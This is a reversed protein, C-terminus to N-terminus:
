ITTVQFELIHGVQRRGEPTDPPLAQEAQTLVGEATTAMHDSEASFSVMGYRFSFSFLTLAGELDLKTKACLSNLRELVVLAGDVHSKPLIIGFRYGSSHALVDIQRTSKRMLEAFRFLLENYMDKNNSAYRDTFDNVEIWGVCLPDGFRRSRQLELSLQKKFFSEVYCGTVPDAATEGQLRSIFDKLYAILRNFSNALIGIEDHGTVPVEVEFNQEFISETAEILDRIPKFLSKLLLWLSVVTIVLFVLFLLLTFTIANPLAYQYLYNASIGVIGVGWIKGKQYIPLSVNAVAFKKNRLIIEKIFFFSEKGQKDIWPLESREQYITKIDGGTTDLVVEGSNTILAVYLIEEQLELNSAIKKEMEPLTQNSIAGSIDNTQMLYYAFGSTVGFFSNKISYMLYSYFIASLSSIIAIVMIFVFLRIKRSFSLRLKM